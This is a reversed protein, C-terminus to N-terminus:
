QYECLQHYNIDSPGVYERAILVFIPTSISVNKGEGINNELCILLKESAFPVTINNNAAYTSRCEQVCIM